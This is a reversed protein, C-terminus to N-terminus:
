HGDASNLYSTNDTADPDVARVVDAITLGAQYSRLDLTKIVLCQQFLISWVAHADRWLHYDSNDELRRTSYSFSSGMPQLDSFCQAYPNVSSVM